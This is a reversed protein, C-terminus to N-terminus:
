RILCDRACLDPKHAKAHFSQMPSGRTEGHTNLCPQTRSVVSLDPRLTKAQQCRFPCEGVYFEYIVCGLSWWDVTSNYHANTGDRRKRLVEPAWDASETLGSVGRCWFGYSDPNYVFQLLKQVYAM